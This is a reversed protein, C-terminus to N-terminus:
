LKSQNDLLTSLQFYWLHYSSAFGSVPLVLRESLRWRIQQSVAALKCSIGSRMEDPCNERKQESANPLIDCPNLQNRVPRIKVAHVVYVHEDPM